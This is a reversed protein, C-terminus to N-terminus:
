YSLKEMSRCDGSILPMEHKEAFFCSIRLINEVLRGVLGKYGDVAAAIYPVEVCSRMATPLRNSESPARFISAQVDIRDLYFNSCKPFVRRM